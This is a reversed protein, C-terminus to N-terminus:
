LQPKHLRVPNNHLYFLSRLVKLENSSFTTDESAKQGYTFTNETSALQRRGMGHSSSLICEVYMDWFNQALSNFIDNHKPKSSGKLFMMFEWLATVTSSVRLKKVEVLRRSSIEWCHHDIEGLGAFAEKQYELNGYVLNVMLLCGMQLHWKRSRVFEM